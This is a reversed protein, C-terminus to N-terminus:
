QQHRLQALKKQIAMTDAGVKKSDILINIFYWRDNQHIMPSLLDIVRMTFSEGEMMM